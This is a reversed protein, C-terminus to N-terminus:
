EAAVERALEEGEVLVAGDAQLAMIQESSLGLDTALVNKTHQALRPPVSAVPSQTFGNGTDTWRFSGALRPGLESDDVVVGRSITHAARLAAPLDQVINTPVGAATCARHLDVANWQMTIASIASVLEARHAVRASNTRFRNDDVWQSAGLVEALRAFQRDNGVAVVLPDTLTAFAQYPVISPHGSGLREPANGTILSAQAQNVLANLAVDYLSIDLHRGSGTRGSEIIGALAATAAHTGTLVDIWAVGLKLPAGGPEGTMAMVGTEAQMAADYGPEHKRPGTQGYGTISVYVLKPNRAALTAYDLGYRALDDVKYNEVVVDAQEALKRVLEAGEPHKFNIAISEKGRNTSVYYGSQSGAWPPGWTRTEDGTLSEVKIVRAGLDALLQTCYPGALVRSLDLVTIGVLPTM